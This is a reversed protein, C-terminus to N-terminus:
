RIREVVKAGWPCYREVTNLWYDLDDEVMSPRGDCVEVSADAAHVTEPDLRWSWPANYGGDGSILDGIIVGEDGSDLRAELEDVQAQTTVEVTFEESFGEGAVEITFAPNQEPQVADDCAGLAASLLLPLVPSFHLPDACPADGKEDPRRRRDGSVFPPGSGHRSRFPVTDQGSTM